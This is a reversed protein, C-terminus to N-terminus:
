KGTNKIIKKIKETKSNSIKRNRFNKVCTSILTHAPITSTSGDEHRLTVVFLSISIVIGKADFAQFYVSDGIRITDSLTMQLSAIIGLITDKFLIIFVGATVGLGTIFSVLSINLICHTVFVCSILCAFIRAGQMPVILIKYKSQAGIEQLANFISSITLVLVSITYCGLLLNKATMIYSVVHISNQLVSNWILFFFNILLHFVKRPISHKEFIEYHPSNSLIKAFYYLILRKILVLYPLILLGFLSVLFFKNHLITM